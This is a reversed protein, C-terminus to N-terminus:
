NHIAKINSSKLNVNPNWDPLASLMDYSVSSNGFTYKQSGACGADIFTQINNLPIGSCSVADVKSMSVCKLMGKNYKSPLENHAIKFGKNGTLVDADDKYLCEEDICVADMRFPLTELEVANFYEDATICEMDKNVKDFVCINTSNFTYQQNNLVDAKAYYNSNSVLKSRVTEFLECKDKIFGGYLILLLISTIIMIYILIDKM